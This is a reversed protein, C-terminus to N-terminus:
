QRVGGRRIGWEVTKLCSLDLGGGYSIASRIDGEIKVLLTDMEGMYDVIICKGEVNKKSLTNNYSASGFYQKFSKGEIEIREGASEHYGAFLRGCMVMSAGAVMAKSIDGINKIAGDSIIPKKAVSSCGLITSFQPRSFGTSMYTECVNGNSIGAKTMDAGWSEIAEVSEETAYNGVILFTDNFDDKIFKVMREAKVSYANAIDVTIFEPIVHDKKMRRLQEYSDDNVGVSISAIWGREHMMNTFAHNDIGFRHMIYFWGRESLFICTNEDVVSKMNAPVVPCKFKHKGLLISPDCDDRSEAICKKHKLYIEQFGYEINAKNM